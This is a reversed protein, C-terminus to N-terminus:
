DNSTLVRRIELNGSVELDPMPGLFREFLGKENTRVQAADWLDGESAPYCTLGDQMIEKAIARNAEHLGLGARVLVQFLYQYHSYRFKPGYKSDCDACM